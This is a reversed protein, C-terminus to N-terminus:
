EITNMDILNNLLAYVTLGAVTKIGTKRTINKRHSIVTYISINYLDAIEKNLMGKAVAVLIEKERASLEGGEGRPADSEDEMRSVVPVLIGDEIFTHRELDSELSYLYFLVRFCDQSCSQAPQYMTVLKKLDDLKEEVNSHNKEYEGITYPERERSDIMAEVYPFVTKEEYDFHRELEEKYDGFFKRIVKKHMDDCPAIMEEIAAALAPVMTELYYTHSLRLYRVIDELCAGEMQERSPRYGDFAYVKCIILFTEPDIGMGDCVEKVTAEGFGYSMGFRSFVGLISFNVDLLDAMKMAPSISTISVQPKM